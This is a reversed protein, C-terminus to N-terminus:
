RYNRKLRGKIEVDIAGRPSAEVVLYHSSTGASSWTETAGDPIVRTTRPGALEWGDVSSRVDLSRFGSDVKLRRDM